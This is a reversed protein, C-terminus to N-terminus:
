GKRASDSIATSLAAAVRQEFAALTYRERQRKQGQAGMRRSLRADSLLCELRGALMAPDGPDVLFGTEGDEIIEPLAGEYTAVIPLASQMAELAVLPFADNCTPFVFIDHRDLLQQKAADYTPGVYHIQDQLRLRRVAEHFRNLCGDNSEAGAFTAEFQLGRARLIALADVLVLPGKSEIMNSLFLLRPPGDHKPRDMAPRDAVGNPVILMRDPPVLAAIDSALRGSLHIVWAGRFAWEYLRRKWPVGLRARIGKGHLHYIRPLGTLKMIAVFMCDRYFAGGIPALTFYVADPRRTLLVHALRAGIGITQALKRVSIRNIDKISAAFNLPLVEIDFKSALLQSNAITQNVVTVGHIPPPLQM